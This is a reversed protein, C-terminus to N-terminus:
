KLMKSFLALYLREAEHHQTQPWPPLALCVGTVAEPPLGPGGIVGALSLVEWASGPSM